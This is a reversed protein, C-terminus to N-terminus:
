KCNKCNKCYLLDLGKLLLEDDVTIQHRCHPVILSALGGCAVVNAPYGLEEEMRDIIGDLAGANGYVVGSQMSDVTNINIVKAPAKLRIGPLQATSDVLPQRVWTSSLPRHATNM